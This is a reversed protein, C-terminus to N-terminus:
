FRSMEQVLIGGFSVGILVANDHAVKDAMRKAYQSITEESEPIFWELLHIKFKQKPLDIHEFILPNAAMGPVFYVHILDQNM